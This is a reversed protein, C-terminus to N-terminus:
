GHYLRYPAMLNQLKTHIGWLVDLQNSPTVKSNLTVLQEMDKGLLLIAQHLTQPPNTGSLDSGLMGPTLMLEAGESSQNSDSITSPAAQDNQLSLINASSSSSTSDSLYLDQNLDVSHPGMQPESAMTTDEDGGIAKNIIAAMDSLNTDSFAQNIPNVLLTTRSPTGHPVDLDELPTPDQTDEFPSPLRGPSPSEFGQVPGGFAMIKQKDHDAPLSPNFFNRPKWEASDPIIATSAMARMQARATKRKPLNTPPLVSRKGTSTSPQAERTDVVAPPNQPTSLDHNLWGNVKTTTTLQPLSMNGLPTVSIIPNKGIDLKCNGMKKHNTLSYLRSFQSYCIDCTFKYQDHM